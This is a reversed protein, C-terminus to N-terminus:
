WQLVTHPDVEFVRAVARIGLGEALAGIAWVLMDPSVRKGHLPTGHTEQFSGKCGTCHLQRWRGGSPHGNSTIHGLGLWGRYACPPHPCFHSSTDVQRPRGRTAVIRLPPCGPPQPVHEHAQACAACPPKCTLGPFPQPDSSRKGPPPLPKSPQQDGGTCANPWAYHLMVCLWLLGLFMLQYFFLHSVM